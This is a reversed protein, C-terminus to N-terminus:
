VLGTRKLYQWAKGQRIESLSWQCYALDNCFQQREETTPYLPSELDRLDAKGMTLAPHDGVVFCPVGAILGDVAVNSRYTVVAWAKKLEDVLPGTAYRTGPIPEADEWSPKPRYAIPRNSCQRIRDVIWQAHETGSGLGWVRAAKDSMGAVLIEKGGTQWDQVQRNFLSFRDPGHGRQFYATPQYDNVALRHYGTIPEHKRGWYALDVFVFKKGMRLHDDLIRKGNGALGYLVGVDEEALGQYNEEHVIQVKEGYGARSLGEMFCTVISQARKGRNLYLKVKM